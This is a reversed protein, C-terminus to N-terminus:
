RSVSFSGGRYDDPKTQVSEKYKKQAEEFLKSRSEQDLKPQQAIKSLATAEEFSIRHMYKVVPYMRIFDTATLNRSFVQSDDSESFIQSPTPHLFVGAIDQLRLYLGHTFILPRLDFTPNEEEVTFTWDFRKKVSDKVVTKWYTSSKAHGGFLLNFYSLVISNYQEAM